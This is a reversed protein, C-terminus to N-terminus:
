LTFYFTAGQGVAGKAWVRGGHRDIIRQVTTLGIGTGEFETTAHLRQFTGFLKDAYAMDFGVGDDRVFYAVEGDHETVGFEIRAHPHKSTFKWANDLLSKMVMRLLHEDGKVVVGEEIVFEVQREPQTAQLRLAIEQALTSLDVTERCVERRTVRSLLLLDDILQAMRQSAARVRQLYYRGDADLRDGYDELLALSFGDMSRLPSRLEHAVSYAFGELEENAAWLEATREVVRQELEENLRHVKEEARVRETIEAQLAENARALEATREQVRVELGKSYDELQKQSARLEQIMGNFSRALVGVEGTARTDVPHDLRGATFAKAADALEVIPGSIGRSLVLAGAITPIMIAVALLLNSRLVSRAAENVSDSSVALLVWWTEQGIEIPEIILTGRRGTRLDVYDEILSSEAGLIGAEIREGYCERDDALYVTGDPMVVKCYIIDEAGAVDQIASEVALWNLSRFAEETSLGIQRAILKGKGILEDNLVGAQRTIALITSIAVAFSVLLISGIMLRKFLTM